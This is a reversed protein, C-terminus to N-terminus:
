LPIGDLREQWEAIAARDGDWRVADSAIRRWLSLLMDSAPGVLHADGEAFGRGLEDDYEPDLSWDANGDDARVHLISEAEGLVGPTMVRVDLFEDIGDVALEVPLPEAAARARQADWRHILTEHLLRRPWFRVTSDSGYTWVEADQDARAFTLLADELGADFWATVDEGDAPGEIDGRDLKDGALEDVHRTGWRYTTGVHILLDTQTWGPCTPVAASLDIRAVDRLRSGETELAGLDDELTRDNTM